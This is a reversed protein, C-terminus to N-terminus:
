NSPLTVAMLQSLWFDLLSVRREHVSDNNRRKKKKKKKM